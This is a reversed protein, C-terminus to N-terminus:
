LAAIVLLCCVSPFLFSHWLYARHRPSSSSMLCLHLSLSCICSLYVIAWRQVLLTVLCHIILRWVTICLPKVAMWLGSLHSHPFHPRHDLDAGPLFLIQVLSPIAKSSCPLASPCSLFLTCRSGLSSFLFSRLVNPLSLPHPSHAHSLTQGFYLPDALVTGYGLPSPLLPLQSGSYKLCVSFNLICCFHGSHWTTVQPSVIHLMGPSLSHASLFLGSPSNYHCLHCIM